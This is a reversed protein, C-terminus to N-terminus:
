IKTFILTQVQAPFNQYLMMYGAALGASPQPEAVHWIKQLKM